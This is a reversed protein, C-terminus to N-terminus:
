YLKMSPLSQLLLEDPNKLKEESATWSCNSDSSKKYVGQSEKYARDALVKYKTTNRENNEEIAKKTLAIYKMYSSKSRNYETKYNRCIEQQSLSKTNTATEDKADSCNVVLLALILLSFYKVSTM